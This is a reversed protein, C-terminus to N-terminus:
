QRNGPQQKTNITSTLTFRLEGFRTRTAIYLPLRNADNSIWAQAVLTQGISLDLQLSDRQGTPVDITEQKVAKIAITRLRHNADLFPFNQTAGIKLDSARISYFLSVLDLTNPSIPVVNGNSLSATNNATNYSATVQKLRRGERLRQDTRVPTLKDILVYSSLQDDVNILTQAAGKSTAEGYLEFVRLGNLSGQQRVEFSAKGVSAFTGWAIDYNLKEGIVFPLPREAYHKGNTGNIGSNGSEDTLIKLNALAPSRRTIIKASALEARVEGSSFRASLLVPLKKGDDTLWILTRYKSFRKQPSLKLCVTNFIGAQTTIRERGKVEVEIEVIERGYLAALKIREGPPLPRLRLGYLLSPLDYIGTPISLVSGNTYLAQRENQDLVITEESQQNGQRILNVIRFPVATNPSIYSTYQNDILAFLSRVQGSTEVRTRIQYSEQGFFQGQDAVEMELRAASPFNLWAVNFVLREGVVFPSGIGETAATPEQPASPKPPPTLGGQQAYLEVGFCIAGIAVLGVVFFQRVSRRSFM